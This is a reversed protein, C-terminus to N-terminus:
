NPLQKRLNAKILVSEEPLTLRRAEELPLHRTGKRALLFVISKHLLLFFPIDISQVLKRTFSFSLYHSKVKFEDRMGMYKKEYILCKNM